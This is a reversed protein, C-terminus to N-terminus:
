NRAAATATASASLSQSTTDEEKAAQIADKLSSYNRASIITSLKSSRLGESFQKIALKENLPKLIGATDSNGESQSLTLETFLREIETGYEEISTSGQQLHLLKTQIAMFSKKTLLHCRMDKILEEISKYNGTIRLKANESLRSKLVFTVLLTKGKEDLMDAYMELSDILRKTTAEIGDMAPLLNCAVKLDFEMKVSKNKPFICLSNIEEFINKINQFIDLAAPVLKKDKGKDLLLLIKTCEEFIYNAEDLKTKIVTGKYRAQGKKILYKRIDVLAEYKEILVDTM